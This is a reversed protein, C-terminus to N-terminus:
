NPRSLRIQVTDGDPVCELRIANYPMPLAEIVSQATAIVL